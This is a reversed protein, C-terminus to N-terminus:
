EVAKRKRRGPHYFSEEEEEEEEEEEVDGGAPRLSGSDCEARVPSFTQVSQGSVEEM